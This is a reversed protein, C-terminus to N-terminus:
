EYYEESKTQRKIDAPNYGISKSWKDVDKSTFKLGGKKTHPREGNSVYNYLTAVAIDAYNSLEEIFLRAKNNIELVM